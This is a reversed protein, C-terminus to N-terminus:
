KKTRYLKQKIERQALKRIFYLRAKQFSGRKVLKIDVIHPSNLPIIREVGIGSRTIKRATLTKTNQDAGRIKILIGKFEQQREKNDERIKYKISITDGIHFRKDNHIYSNAM